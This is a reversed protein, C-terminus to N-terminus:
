SLSSIVSMGAQLTGWGTAQGAANRVLGKVLKLGRLNPFGFMKYELIPTFTCKKAPVM